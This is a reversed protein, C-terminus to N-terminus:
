DGKLLHAITMLVHQTRQPQAHTSLTWFGPLSKLNMQIYPERVRGKIPSKSSHMFDPLLYAPLNRPEQCLPQSSQM